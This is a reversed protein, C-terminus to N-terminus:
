RGPPLRLRPTIVVRDDLDLLRRVLPALLAAPIAGQLILV